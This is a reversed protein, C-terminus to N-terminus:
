NIRKYLLELRLFNDITIKWIKNKNIKKMKRLVSNIQFIKSQNNLFNMLNFIKNLIKILNFKRNLIKIRELNILKNNIKLSIMKQLLTKIIFGKIM